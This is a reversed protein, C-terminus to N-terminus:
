FSFTHIETFNTGLIRILLKGAYTLIIAQRRYPSLGNDSAIIILKGVWIHVVRGCHILMYIADMYVNKVDVDIWTILIM